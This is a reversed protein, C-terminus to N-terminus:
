QVKFQMKQISETCSTDLNELSGAELFQREISRICSGRVGHAGPVVLHLSNPLHRAAEAGWKPPTVPDFIGSLLLVPVDVSVPEGFNKPIDSKPWFECVAMQQRVRDDKLFTESTFEVIENETIRAVDETCTVCLLMGLALSTRIGRNSEIGETAFPEYDGLLAQHILYPLQSGSSSSYMITRVAEAFAARTLKVTVREKTAPHTVEVEAPEQELRDLITYFEEEFNPFAAHCDPNSACEEFLVQIAEHASPSHFLPNKNAMPLVGNLVATRVTEPHRRMYVLAMRTGYSGGTVNIKDYGLARRLDNVDDAALCTSYMTLDYNRQLEEMCARFTDVNFLPDLYGQLNDDTAALECDLKNDGGTGRQSVLVIDREERMWSERYINVRETVDGGPGGAFPFVPDPKPNSGTAHLIVVDLKIKRGERAERDELVSFTGRSIEGGFDPDEETVLDLWSKLTEVDVPPAKEAARCSALLLSVTCLVCITWIATIKKRYVM